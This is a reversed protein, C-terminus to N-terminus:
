CCLAFLKFRYLVYHFTYKCKLSGIFTTDFGVSLWMIIIYGAGSMIHGLNLNLGCCMQFEMLSRSRVFGCCGVAFSNLAGRRIVVIKDDLKSKSSSRRIQSLFLVRIRFQLQRQCKRFCKEESLIKLGM